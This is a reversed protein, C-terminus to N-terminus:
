PLANEPSSRDAVAVDGPNEVAVVRVRTEKVRLERDRPDKVRPERARLDKGRPEPEKGRLMKVRKRLRRERGKL